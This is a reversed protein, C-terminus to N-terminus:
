VTVRLLVPLAVKLMVLMATVPVLALSKACALVHPMVSAAPAFQVIATINVGAALPLRLPDSVKVSLLLPTTPLTCVTLRLPM